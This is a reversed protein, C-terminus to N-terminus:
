TCTFKTCTFECNMDRSFLGDDGDWGGVSCQSAKNDWTQSGYAFKLPGKDYEPHLSQQRKGIMKALFSIDASLRRKDNGSSQPTVLMVCPLASDTGLTEDWDVQISSNYGIQNSGADTITVKLSLPDQDDVPLREWVHVNCTGTMYPPSASSASTPVVTTSPPIAPNYPSTPQITYQCNISYAESTSLAPAPTGGCNCYASTGPVSMVAECGPLGGKGPVNTPSVTTVPMFTGNVACNYTTYKDPGVKSSLGAIWGGNCTCYSTASVSQSAIKTDFATAVHCSTIPPPSSLKSTALTTSLPESTLSKKGPTTSPSASPTIAASPPSKQGPKTSPSASPTITASSGPHSSLIATGTTNATNSWTVLPDTNSEMVEIISYAVDLYDTMGYLDWYDYIPTAMAATGMTTTTVTNSVSCGETTSCAGKLIFYDTGRVLLFPIHIFGVTITSTTATKAGSPTFVSFTIGCSSATHTTSCHTSSAGSSPQLSTADPSTQYRSTKAQTPNNNDDVQPPPPSPGGPPPNQGDPESPEWGCCLGWSPGSGQEGACFIPVICSSSTDCLPGECM